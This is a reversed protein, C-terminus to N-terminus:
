SARYSSSFDLWPMHYFFLLRQGIILREGFNKLIKLNQESIYL